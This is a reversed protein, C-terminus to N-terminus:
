FPRKLADALEFKVPFNSAACLRRGLEILAPTISGLLSPEGCRLLAVGIGLLRVDLSAADRRLPALSRCRQALGRHVSSPSTRSLWVRASVGTAMVM